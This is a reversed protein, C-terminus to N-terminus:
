FYPTFHRDQFEPLAASISNSSQQHTSIHQLFSNSRITADSTNLSQLLYPQQGWNFTSFSSGSQRLDSSNGSGKVVDTASLRSTSNLVKSSKSTEHYFINLSDEMCADKKVIIEFCSSKNSLGSAGNSRQSLHGIDGYMDNMTTFHSKSDDSSGLQDLVSHTDGTDDNADLDLSFIESIIRDEFQENYSEILLKEDRSKDTPTFEIDLGSISSSRGYVNEQEGHFMMPELSLITSPKHLEEHYRNAAITSFTSFDKSKKSFPSSFSENEFNCSFKASRLNTKDTCSFDFETCCNSSSSSLLNSTITSFTSLDNSQRSFHSFVSEDEFSCSFDVSGLDSHWWSWDYSPLSNQQTSTSDGPLTRLSIFPDCKRSVADLDDYESSQEQNETATKYYPSYAKKSNCIGVFSKAHSFKEKDSKHLPIENGSTPFTNNVRNHDGSSSEFYIKARSSPMVQNDNTSLLNSKDNSSAVTAYSRGFYDSQMYRNYNIHGLSPPSSKTDLPPPLFSGSHQKLNSFALKPCQQLKSTCFSIVEERLCIDEQPVAGHVYLCDPNKCPLNNLWSYCYRTTGFSAKLPWGDLIYGNVVQICRLAEEETSFTVYVICSDSSYNQRSIDTQAIFIKVIKGYQGLYEKKRLTKENSIKKPFGAIYVINRRIVRISNLDSGIDTLRQKTKQLKHKKNANLIELREKNITRKLIKEKDYPKDCAPCRADICDKAATQIIFHWCWLCIEYGCVCPQLEQDTLDMEEMCIPCIGANQGGM